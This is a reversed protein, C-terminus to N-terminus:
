KKHETFGQDNTEGAPPWDRKTNVTHKDIAANYVSSMKHGARAAADQLLLFMDAFETIDEPNEIAEECESKLHQLPGTPGRIGFTEVSWEFCRQQFNNLANDMDSQKKM